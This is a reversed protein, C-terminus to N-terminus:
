RITTRLGLLQFLNGKGIEFSGLARLGLAASVRLASSVAHDIKDNVGLAGSFSRTLGSDLQNGYRLSVHAASCLFTRAANLGIVYVQTVDAHVSTYSLERFNGMQFLRRLLFDM